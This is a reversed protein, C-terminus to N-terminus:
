VPPAPLSIKRLEAIAPLANTKEYVCGMHETAQRLLYEAIEDDTSGDFLQRIVHDICCDYEDWCLPEDGVGIPDWVEMLVRRVEPQLAQIANRIGKKAADETM